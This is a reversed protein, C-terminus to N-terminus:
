LHVCLLSSQTLHLTHSWVNFKFQIKFFNAATLSM